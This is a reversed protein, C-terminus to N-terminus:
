NNYSTEVCGMRTCTSSVMRAADGLIWKQNSNTWRNVPENLLRWTMWIWFTPIDIAKKVTLFNLNYLDKRHSHEHVLSEVSWKIISYSRVPFILWINSDAHNDLVTVYVVKFIFIFLIFISYCIFFRWECMFPIWPKWLKEICWFVCYNVVM